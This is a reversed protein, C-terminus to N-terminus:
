SNEKSRLFTLINEHIRGWVLVQKWRVADKICEISLAIKLSSYGVEM